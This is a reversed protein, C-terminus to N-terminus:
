KVREGFGRSTDRKAKQNGYSVEWKIIFLSMKLFGVDYVRHIDAQM